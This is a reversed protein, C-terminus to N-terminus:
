PIFTERRRSLEVRVEHPDVDVTPDVFLDHMEVAAVALQTANVPATGDAFVDPHDRLYTAAARAAEHELRDAPAPYSFRWQQARQAILAKDDDDVLLGTAPFIRCDYTRCTRPRHEYISCKEDILMPCHGREDYGLLVHGRPMRPAPFRLQKPIRALTDREDPAIHIFQSATCCATCGGCPVVSPHDGRLAGHMETIWESFDGAPLDREENANGDVM